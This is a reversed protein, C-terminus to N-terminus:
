IGHLCTYPIILLPMYTGGLRAHLYSLLRLAQCTFEILTLSFPMYIRGYDIFKAHERTQRTLVDLTLLSPMYTHSFDFAQCTLEVM